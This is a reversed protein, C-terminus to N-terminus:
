TKLVNCFVRDSYIVLLQLLFQSTTRDNTMQDNGMCNNVCRTVAEGRHSIGTFIYNRLDNRTMEVNNSQRWQTAESMRYRGPRKQRNKPVVLINTTTYQAQTVTVTPKGHKFHSGTYVGSDIVDILRINQTFEVVSFYDTLMISSIITYNRPLLKVYNVAPSVM